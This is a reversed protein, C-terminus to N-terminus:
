GVEVILESEVFNAVNGDEDIGRSNFRTGARAISRRSILTLRAPKSLYTKSADSSCYGQIIPVFWRDPIGQMRFDKLLDYNWIYDTRTMLNTSYDQKKHWDQHSISM